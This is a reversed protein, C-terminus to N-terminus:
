NLSVAITDDYFNLFFQKIAKKQGIWKKALNSVRNRRHRSATQGTLGVRHTAGHRLPTM